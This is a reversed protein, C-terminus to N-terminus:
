NRPYHPYALAATLSVQVPARAALMREHPQWSRLLTGDTLVITYIFAIGLFQRDRIRGNGEPAPEIQVDDARVVVEVATGPSYPSEQALLGLATEIGDPSVVGPLFDAQGIFEAVFRNRPRHFVEEPGGIQQLHGANMVAIRDGMFLAEEQDHTVFIATAGSKKLLQRVEARMAQRLAGDLNSFPEDLLLVVPRPALARALAVRQQQGGSLAHPARAGMGDLGVFSLMEAVRAPRERRPLGFAINEAVSLHPFIAYDQFVIGTRRKEPPLHRGPAAVEQQAILIRGDDLEEFGAILRLTTTKGCGSPGVLTLIEGEAVTFSLDEVVGKTTFKKHLHACLVAPPTM